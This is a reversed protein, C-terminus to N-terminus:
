FVGFFKDAMRSNIDDSAEQLFRRQERQIDMIRNKIFDKDDKLESFANSVDSRTNGTVRKLTNIDAQLRSKKQSEMVKKAYNQPSSMFSPDGLDKLLKNQAIMDQKKQELLDMAGDFNQPYGTLKNKQYYKDLAQERNFNDVRDVKEKLKNELNSLRDVFANYKPSAKAKSLARGVRFRRVGAGGAMTAIGGVAAGTIASIVKGKSDEGGRKAKSYESTGGIGAGLGFEALNKLIRQRSM